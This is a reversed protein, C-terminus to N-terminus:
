GDALSRYHEVWRRAIRSWDYREWVFPRAREAAAARREADGMWHAVADTLPEVRTPVVGGVGAELIERHINVQDSILVPTGTALAEAV